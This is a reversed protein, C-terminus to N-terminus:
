RLRAYEAKAAQLVPTEPDAHQWLAFFDQYAKRARAQDGAVAWARGLGLRALAGIPENFVVGPHDAIKQFEAAAASGQHAALYALGRVYVPYLALPLLQGPGGLEYPSAAQLEEIAKSPDGKGLAIAARIEPLFNLRVVTDQPFRQALDDALKQAGSGDGALALALATGAAIDRDNSAQVAQQARQRARAANGVLAERLAADAAWVGATAKEGAAQASAMARDTLQGAKALQGSYAATDADADLVGDEIGPKGMGWASERAMGAADGKLFALQYLYVHLVPSDAGHALAQQVVDQAEDVRGLVIYASVLNAYNLASTSALSAAQQAAVLGKDYEGLAAYIVGLNGVPLLDSPYTKAWIQYDQETKEMDGAVYQDYHSTIYFRERESVRERLDYARKLNEAALGSEGLNYYNNGLVAYAMAFNPDLSIARQLLPIATPPDGSINAKWGLSYAQLAELSPTTVDELPANFKEISGLSEGLKERLGAAAKGLAGLVQEKGTATAQEQAIAAGSQCNVARLGIVYQNGLSSISGDLVAASANRQCVERALDRGLRAGAPQGMLRLTGAIQEDSVINLFPSQELQAALGQRLTGDFVPDGTTNTFDALVISDKSTLKAGRSALFYVGAAIAAMVIAAGGALMPWRRRAKPAKPGAVSAVASVPVPATEPARPVAATSLLHRSSELDREIRRLDAGVDAASQYRLKRDKELAKAIIEGLKPSANPSLRQPDLPARHLIGDFIAGTTDGRFPMEGTAMEYLVAGFSFLDTRADVEEGLVQEPSMYAVTGVTAGPSTLNEEGITLDGPAAGAGGRAGRSQKALGFDLIKAHGRDTVFINAPKIDRHVIGKAHAADLADAIEGGLELLLGLPLPKANIRHKLTQGELCQMVIFPKGEFEDIEHITCINPHDLASAARAEREFRELANRDRALEEPLFKLAVFRGLKTDEAKYVVGMGGGGLREVIRYHTITRGILSAPEAM